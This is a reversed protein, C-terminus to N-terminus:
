KRHKQFTFKLHKGFMCWKVVIILNSIVGSSQTREFFRMTNDNLIESPKLQIYNSFLNSLDAFINKPIIREALVRSCNIKDITIGETMKEIGACFQEVSM